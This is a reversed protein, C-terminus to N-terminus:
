KSPWWDKGTYDGPYLEIEDAYEEKEVIEVLKDAVWEPTFYAKGKLNEEEKEKLTMPGFDTLTSGLAIHVFRLTTGEFEKALSLSLLRLAAKSACYISRGGTPIKGMGSGMNLVVAQDSNMLLPLLNKTLLFPFTANIAISDYWDYDVVEELSKYVGIGANNVLIDLKEAKDRISKILDEVKDVDRFDFPVYDHGQGELTGVLNKLKEEDKSVLILRAKEKALKKALASGIGGTAGTIVITKDQLKM